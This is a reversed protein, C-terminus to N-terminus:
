RATLRRLAEFGGDSYANLLTQIRDFEPGRKWGLPQNVALNGYANHVFLLYAEDESLGTKEVISPVASGAGAEIVHRVIRSFVEEDSYLLHYEANAPARQCISAQANGELPPAAALAEDIIADLLAYKDEYHLYFTGRNIDARRCIDAVTMKSFGIEKLLQFFAERIVSLTYRTRRDARERGEGRVEM